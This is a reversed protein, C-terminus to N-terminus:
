FRRIGVFHFPNLMVVAIAEGVATQGWRKYGKPIVVFTTKQSTMFKTIWFSRGNPNVLVALLHARTQGRYKRNFGLSSEM